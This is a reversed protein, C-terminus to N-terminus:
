VPLSSPAFPMCWVKLDDSYPLPSALEPDPDTDSDTDFPRPM